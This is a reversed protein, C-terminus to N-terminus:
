QATVLLRADPLAGRFMRAGVVLRVDGGQFLREFALLGAPVAARDAGRTNVGLKPRQDPVLVPAQRRGAIERAAVVRLEPFVIATCSGPLGPLRRCPSRRARM